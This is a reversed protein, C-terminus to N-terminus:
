ADSAKSNEEQITDINSEKTQDKENMERETIRKRAQELRFKEDRKSASYVFTVVVTLIFVYLINQPMESYIETWTLPGLRTPDYRTPHGYLKLVLILLVYSLVFFKFAFKFIFRNNTITKILDTKM